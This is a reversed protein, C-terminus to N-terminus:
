LRSGHRKSEMWDLNVVGPVRDLMTATRGIRDKEIQCHIMLSGQNGETEHFHFEDVDIKREMLLAFIRAITCTTTELQFVLVFAKKSIDRIIHQLNV